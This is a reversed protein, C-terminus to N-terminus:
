MEFSRPRGVCSGSLILLARGHRRCSGRCYEEGKFDRTLVKTTLMLSVFSATNQLALRSGGTETSTFVKRLQRGPQGLGLRLRRLRAACSVVAAQVKRREYILRVTQNATLEM